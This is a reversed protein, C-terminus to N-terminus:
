RPAATRSTLLGADSGGCGLLGSGQDSMPAVLQGLLPVSAVLQTVLPTVQGVLPLSGTLTELVGPPCDTAPSSPAPTPAASPLTSPTPTQTAVPMAATKPATVMPLAPPLVVPQVPVTAAQPPDMSPTPAPTSTAPPLTAAAETTTRLGVGSAYGLIVLVTGSLAAAVVADRRDITHTGPVGM